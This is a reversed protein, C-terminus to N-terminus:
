FLAALIAGGGAIGTEGCEVRESAVNCAVVRLVYLSALTQEGDWELAGADTGDVVELTLFEAGHEFDSVAAFAIATAVV